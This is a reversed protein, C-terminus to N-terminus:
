EGASRRSMTTVGDSRGTEHFGCSRYVALAPSNIALCELYVEHLGWRTLAEDVLRATALRALGAGRAAEDGILLRGFEGRKATWDVHYLAVQGVPRQLTETEEIIFVFDDDRDRYRDFWSRHQDPAIVDPNFFWQRIHDQNRWALTM